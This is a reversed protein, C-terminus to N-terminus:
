GRLSEIWQEFPACIIENIAQDLDGEIEAGRTSSHRSIKAQNYTVFELPCPKPLRYPADSSFCPTGLLAWSASMAIDRIATYVIGLEYVVSKTGTKLEHIAEQLLEELDDIDKRMTSYPVPVGLTSLFPLGFPSFICKAELHLHWAFLRGLSYYERLLEPAYISWSPPFNTRNDTFPLVLVDVDSTPSVEGRCISGFVYIEHTM